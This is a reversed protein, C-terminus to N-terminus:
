LLSIRVDASNFQPFSITFMAGLGPESECSITGNMVDIYRKVISLGLGHSEENGTPRASFKQFKLFMKGIEDKTFGQGNDKIMIVSRGSLSNLTIMIEQDIPSFKIANSLLNEVVLRLYNIDVLSVLPNLPIDTVIKIGKQMALDQYSSIVSQLIPSVNAPQLDVNLTKNEIAEQNLIKNILNRLRSASELIKSTCEHQLESLNHKENLIISTLGIMQNLPTRLDHAVVGMLYNKEQNLLNLRNNNDELETLMQKLAANKVELEHSQINLKKTLEESIKQSTIDKFVICNGAFGRIPIVTPHSLVEFCHNNYWIVDEHKKLLGDKYRIENRFKVFANGLLEFLDKGILAPESIMVGHASKFQMFEFFKRNFEIIQQHNDLIVIGEGSSLVISSFKEEDWLLDFTLNQARLLDEVYIIIWSTDSKMMRLHVLFDRGGVRLSVHTDVKKNGNQALQSYFRIQGKRDKPSIIEQFLKGELDGKKCDFLLVFQDSVSVIQLKEDLWLIGIPLIKYVESESIGTQIISPDNSM